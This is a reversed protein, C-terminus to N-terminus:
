ICKTITMGGFYATDSMTPVIVALVLGPFNALAKGPPYVRLAVIMCRMKEEVTGSPRCFTMLLYQPTEPALRCPLKGLAVPTPGNTDVPAETSYQQASLCQWCEPNTLCERQCHRAIEESPVEPSCLAEHSARSAFRTQWKEGCCAQDLEEFSIDADQFDGHLAHVDDWM